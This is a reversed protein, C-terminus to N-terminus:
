DQADKVEALTAVILFAFMGYLLINALIPDGTALAITAAVSM